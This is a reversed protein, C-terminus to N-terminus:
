KSNSVCLWPRSVYVPQWLPVRYGAIGSILHFGFAATKRLQNWKKLEASGTNATIRRALMVSISNLVSNFVDCVSCVQGCGGWAGNWLLHRTQKRQKKKKRKKQNSINLSLRVFFCPFTKYLASLPNVSLSKTVIVLTSSIYLCSASM